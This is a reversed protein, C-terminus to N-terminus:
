WSCINLPQFPTDPILAIQHDQVSCLPLGCRSSKSIARMPFCWKGGSNLPGIHTNRQLHLGNQRWARPLWLNKAPKRNLFDLNKQLCHQVTRIKANQLLEPHVNQLELATLRPNKQLEWKIITDTHPSTKKKRGGGFKHKPITNNPLDKTAALLRMITAKGREMGSVSSRLPCTKRGGLLSALKRKTVPINELCSTKVEGDIRLWKWLERIATFGSHNEVAESYMEMLVKKIFLGLCNQATVIEWQRSLHFWLQVIILLFLERKYRHSHNEYEIAIFTHSFSGSRLDNQPLQLKKKQLSFSNVAFVTFALSKSCSLSSIM